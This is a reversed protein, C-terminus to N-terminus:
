RMPMLILLFFFCVVVWVSCMIVSANIIYNITIFKKLILFQKKIFLYIECIILIFPLVAILLMFFFVGWELIPLLIGSVLNFVWLCFVSLCPVSILSLFINLTLHLVPKKLEKHTNNSVSKLNNQMSNESFHQEYAYQRKKTAAWLKFESAAIVLITGFLMGQPFYFVAYMIFDFSNIPINGLGLSFFIVIIFYVLILMLIYSVIVMPIYLFLYKKREYRVVIVPILSALIVAFVQVIVLSIGNISDLTESKSVFVKGETLLNIINTYVICVFITLASNLIGIRSAKSWSDIKKM